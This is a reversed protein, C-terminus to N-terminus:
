SIWNMQNSVVHWGDSQLELEYTNGSASLGAEFYGGDATAHDPRDLVISSIRFILGTGTVGRTTVGQPSPSCSSAALVPPRHGASRDLLEASPDADGEVSLCYFKANQQAGSANNGMMYIFLVERIDELVAERDTAQGPEASTSSTASGGDTTM